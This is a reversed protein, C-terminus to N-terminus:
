NNFDTIGRQETAVTCAAAVVTRIVGDKPSKAWGDGGGQLARPGRLLESRLAPESALEEEGEQGGSM